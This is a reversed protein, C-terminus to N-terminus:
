VAGSKVEQELDKMERKAKIFEHITNINYPFFEYAGDEGIKIVFIPKGSEDKM